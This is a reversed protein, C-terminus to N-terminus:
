TDIKAFPNDGREDWMEQYFEDLEQFAEETQERFAKSWLRDFGEAQAYVTLHEGCLPLIYEAATELKETGPNPCDPHFCKPTPM